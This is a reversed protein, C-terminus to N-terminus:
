IRFLKLAGHPPDRTAQRLAVLSPEGSGDSCRTTPHPPNDNCDNLACRLKANPSTGIRMQIAQVSNSARTSDNVAFTHAPPTSPCVGAVPANSRPLKDIDMLLGALLSIKMSSSSGKTSFAREM